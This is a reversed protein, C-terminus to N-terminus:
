SQAWGCQPTGGGYSGDLIGDDCAEPGNTLGDGCHPGFICSPACHGYAGTNLLTGEDCHEPSQVLGDGCGGPLRCVDSCNLDATM